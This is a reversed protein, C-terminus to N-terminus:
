LPIEQLTECTADATFADSTLSVDNILLSMAQRSTHLEGSPMIGSELRPLYRVYRERWLRTWLLEEGTSYSEPSTCTRAYRAVYGLVLLTTEKHTDQRKFGRLISDMLSLAGDNDNTQYLRILETAVHSPLDHLRKCCQMPRPFM